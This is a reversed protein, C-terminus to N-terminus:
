LFISLTFHMRPDLYNQRLPDLESLAKNQHPSSLSSGFLELLPGDIAWWRNAMPSTNSLFGAAKHYKLPTRPDSGEGRQIQTREHLANYGNKFRRQCEKKERNFFINASVSLCISEHKAAINELGVSSDELEPFNIIKTSSLFFDQFDTM